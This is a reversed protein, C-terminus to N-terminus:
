GDSELLIIQGVMLRDPVLDPNLQRLELVKKGTHEDPFYEKAITWLTDGPEVFHVGNHKRPTEITIVTETTNLYSNVIGPIGVFIVGIVLCLIIFDRVTLKM